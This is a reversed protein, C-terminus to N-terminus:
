SPSKKVQLVMQAQLKAPHYSKSLTGLKKWQKQETLNERRSDIKIFPNGNELRGSGWSNHLCLRRRPFPRGSAPCVSERPLRSLRSGLLSLLSEARAAQALGVAAPDPCGARASFSAPGTPRGAAVVPGKARKGERCGYLLPARHKGVGAGCEGM